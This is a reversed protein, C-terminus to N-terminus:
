RPAIPGAGVAYSDAAKPMKSLDRLPTRMEVLRRRPAPHADSLARGIRLRLAWLDEPGLKGYQIRGADEGGEFGTGSREPALHLADRVTRGVAWRPEDQLQSWLTLYEVDQQGRRYSKLRASPVPPGAKGGRPPYFLSLEDAGKWSDATGVTQWPLVGDTGLSWADLCWAAPQVNSDELPNSGGYEFVLEGFDRKKDLVIRPYARLTGGVVHDDLLGDLTDRRWQPRSIDARFVLKAKGSAGAVGEHFATAFYRLAWFDQLHAPEDLLWPSSGRSWGKTKFDNKGNLFGQFLTDNWGKAAFHGAMQRSVEVFARRYRDPFARDAWYGGNYNGEIPTPWNEHLPLYFGELPVGRRPMDAFATGDFYPGFRQDWASWDLAKGNWRPACDDNIQGGQSYPVRNLLTRHRHALRYYAREGEPLGYCNMEPLFSLHDPLTFDWVELTVGLDLTKGGAKLTLTGKQVGPRADHPVYVEVHIAQNPSHDAPGDGWPTIPDPIPGVKTPIPHYRGLAVEFDKPLTLTPRVDAAAGRLLVQFAVFENRAAHLRIQKTRADWLHNAALYGDPRPPILAGTDSRAKDLEDLIAVQVMGLRPLAADGGQFPAPGTAPLPKPVVESVQVEATAPTGVNGAGDVARVSLKVKAGPKLDLNRLHMRVRDGPKGALPILDRPVERGDVTAFFGVTGAPGEDRPTAWSAWAEGARLGKAGSDLGGPAPPPATDEPGLVATLYPASAAGSERSYVFRNPFPQPTFKEGKRTWESGTDDFLFFGRSIGASRAAVVVPDVAILQWGNADPPSADAMRWTTGGNSLVVSCLDGGEATWPVGPHERSRFTSSGPQKAYSTATGEVWEAGFSGVTVRRLPPNGTSRLHLTAGLVVRGRLPKPDIDVLSMEQYSKLKLKSAGGNGGEAEAGAGSFWTDRTVALRVAEGKVVPASPRAAPDPAPADLVTRKVETIKRVSLWSRLLYGCEHLNAATPASTPSAGPRGVSPHVDGKGMLTGDWDNPRRALIEREYDILPLGRAKALARLAENNSKALQPEGPHPPITSLICIAGQELILDVAAEVDAKYAEVARGATADNTGVMLVVLEPRYSDLMAQLSPLGSKGGALLEDARLGGAATHSRGGDPHDDRALWWGDTDDDAGAHMWRLADRDEATRGEGTRAWQSYPSAFTISDGVHLVVGPRGRFNEAVRRMTADYKWPQALPTPPKDGLPEAASAAVAVAVTLLFPALAHVKPM